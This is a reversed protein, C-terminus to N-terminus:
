PSKRPLGAFSISRRSRRTRNGPSSPYAGASRGGSGRARSSASTLAPPVAVRVGGGHDLGLSWTIMLRYRSRSGSPSQTSAHRGARASPAPGSRGPRRRGGAARGRRAAPPGTARALVVFVAFGVGLRRDRRTQPAEARREPGDGIEQLDVLVQHGTAAPALGGARLVRRVVLQASISRRVDGRASFSVSRVLTAPPSPAGPAPGAAAASGRPDGCAGTAAAGAGPRVAVRFQQFRCGLGARRLPLLGLLLPAALRLGASPRRWPPPTRRAGRRGRPRRPSRRM